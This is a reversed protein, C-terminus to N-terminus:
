PYLYAVANIIARKIDQFRSVGVIYPLSKIKDLSETNEHRAGMFHWMFAEWYKVKKIIRKLEKHSHLPYLCHEYRVFDGDFDLFGCVSREIGDVVHYLTKDKHNRRKVM